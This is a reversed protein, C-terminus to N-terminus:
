LFLHKGMLIVDWIILKSNELLNDPRKEEVKSLLKATSCRWTMGKDDWREYWFTNRIFILTQGDLHCRLYLPGEVWQFLSSQIKLYATQGRRKWKQCSSQRCRWTIGKDDWKEYWFTFPFFGRLFKFPDYQITLPNQRGMVWTIDIHLCWTKGNSIFIDYSQAVNYNYPVSVHSYLLTFIVCTSLHVWRACKRNM